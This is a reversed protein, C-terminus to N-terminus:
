PRSRIATTLAKHHLLVAALITTAGHQVAVRCLMNPLDDHGVYGKYAIRHDTNVGYPTSRQGKEKEEGMIYKSTVQPFSLQDISCSVNAWSWGLAM